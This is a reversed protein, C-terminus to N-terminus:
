QKPSRCHPCLNPLSKRYLVLSFIKPKEIHLAKTVIVLSQWQIMLTTMVPHLHILTVM